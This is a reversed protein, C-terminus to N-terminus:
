RLFAVNTSKKLVTITAPHIRGLEAIIDRGDVRELSGLAALHGARLREVDYGGHAGRPELPSQGFSMRGAVQYSNRRNNEFSGSPGRAGYPREPRPFGANATKYPVDANRPQNQFPRRGDTSMQANEKERWIAQSEYPRGSAQRAADDRRLDTEQPARHFSYPNMYAHSTSGSGSARGHHRGGSYQQTHEEPECGARTSGQRGPSVAAPGDQLEQSRPHVPGQHAWTFRPGHGAAQPIFQQSMARLPSTHSQSPFTRDPAPDPARTPANASDLYENIPVSEHATTQGMALDDSPGAAVPVRSHATQEATDGKVPSVDEAGRKNVSLSMAPELPPSALAKSGTTQTGSRKAMEQRAKERFSEFNCQIYQMIRKLFPERGGHNKAFDADFFVSLETTMQMQEAIGHDEFLECNDITWEEACSVIQDHNYRSIAVLVAKLFRPTNEQITRNTFFSSIFADEAEKTALANNTARPILDDFVSMCLEPKTAWLNQCFNTVDNYPDSRAICPVVTTSHQTNLTSEDHHDLQQQNNGTRMGATTSANRSMSAAIGVVTSLFCGSASLDIHDLYRLPVFNPFPSLHCALHLLLGSTHTLFSLAFLLRAADIHLFCHCAPLRTVCHLFTFIHLATFPFHTLPVVLKVIISDPFHM